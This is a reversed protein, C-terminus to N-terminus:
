TPSFDLVLKQTLILTILSPELDRHAIRRVYNSELQSSKM